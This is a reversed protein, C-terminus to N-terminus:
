CAVANVKGNVRHVTGLFVSAFIYLIIIIITSGATVIESASGIEAASSAPALAFTWSELTCIWSTTGVVVDSCLRFTLGRGLRLSSVRQYVFLMFNRCIFFAKKLLHRSGLLPLIEDVFVDVHFNIFQHLLSWFVSALSKSFSLEANPTMGSCPALSNVSYSDDLSSSM